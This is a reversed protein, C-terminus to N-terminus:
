EGLLSPVLLTECFTDVVPPRRVEYVWLGVESAVSENIGKLPHARYDLYVEAEYRDELVTPTLGDAVHEARLGDVLMHGLEHAVIFMPLSVPGSPARELEREFRMPYNAAMYDPDFVSEYITIQGSSPAWSGVLGDGAPDRIFRLTQSEGGTGSGVAQQTLALLREEGLRDAFHALVETVMAIEDAQWPGEFLIGRAAWYAAEPYAEPANTAQVAVASVPQSVSDSPELDAAAAELSPQVLCASTSLAIVLVAVMRWVKRAM